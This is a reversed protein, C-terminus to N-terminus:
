NVYKEGVKKVFESLLKDQTPQDLTDQLVKAATAVTLDAMYRKVEGMAKTKELQADRETQRLIRSSEERAETLIQEKVKEAQVQADRILKQAEGHAQTMQAEYQQKLNSAQENIAEAEKVNGEIHKQRNELSEMLPKWIIKTLLWVLIVFNIVQLYTTAGLELM